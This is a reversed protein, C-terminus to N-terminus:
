GLCVIEFSDGTLCDGGDATVEFTNEVGVMGIGPFGIKPELAIVMGAELPEDFGKAFVPWEDINLGISHGLFPVKNSGLAMFGESFGAEEAMELSRAYIASPVAGPRLSRAAEEQVRMCLDHARALEDPMSSRPGPWYVQTKDTQYGELCFGIDCVLPRDERWVTGAYGMFPVAPHEGMLGVPGNFHSPYNANEGAAVHGLFIEENSMRLNGSHGHEFFVEWAKHSIERETMGPHIRGPLVNHLSAHHRAGAIRMKHLEWETKVSRTRNLVMDANRFAVDPLRSTLMQSLSWTIGGMEVGCVAGLPSGADACLGALQSFSRYELINKCSSELRAREMGHRLLLVPEGRMPLWLVGVGLTGSLYYINLRSFVLLGEAEPCFERLLRRCREHRLALEDAEIREIAKFNM